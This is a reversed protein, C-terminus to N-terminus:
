VIRNSDGSEVGIRWFIDSSREAENRRSESM